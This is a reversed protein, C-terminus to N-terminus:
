RDFVPKPQVSEVQLRIPQEEDESAPEEGANVSIEPPELPVANQGSSAEMEARFAAFSSEVSGIRKHIEREHARLREQRAETDALLESCQRKTVNSLRRAVLEAERIWREADKQAKERILIAEAEAKERARKAQELSRATEGATEDRAQQASAAAARRIGDAEEEAKSLLSQAGHRATQLVAGAEQGLQEFSPERRAAELEDELARYAEAVDGLFKEVELRDYGRRGAPSFARTSIADASLRAM